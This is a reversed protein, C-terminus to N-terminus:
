TVVEDGASPSTTVAAALWRTTAYSAFLAVLGMSLPIALFSGAGGLLWSWFLLSVFVFTPSLQLGRSMLAPQLLNEAVANILTLAVIVVLARGPGFEALALLVSPVSALFMGVYPIFSLFFTVIGWLLPFDVGLIFLALAVGAGTVANVAARLAFYRGVDRGYTVMRIFADNEEGLSAQLRRVIAGGEALLFIMLILILVANSALGLLGGTLSTFLAVTAEPSVLSALSVGSLGASSLWADLRELEASWGAAYTSLREGVNAMSYGFVLLLLGSGVLLGIFLVLLSLWPALGRQRLSTHLPAVVLAMVVAVFVPTFVPAALHLGALAIVTAGFSMALWGFSGNPM